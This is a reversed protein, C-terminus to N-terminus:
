RGNELVQALMIAAMPGMTNPLQCLIAEDLMATNIVLYNSNVSLQDLCDHVLIPLFDSWLKFM